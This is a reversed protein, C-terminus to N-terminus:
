RESFVFSPAITECDGGTINNVERIASRRSPFSFGYGGCLVEWRDTLRDPGYLTPAHGAKILSALTPM